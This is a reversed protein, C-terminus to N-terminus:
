NNELQLCFFEFIDWLYPFKRLLNCKTDARIRYIPTDQGRYIAYLKIQKVVTIPKM